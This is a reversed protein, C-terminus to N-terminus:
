RPDAPGWVGPVPDGAKGGGNGLPPVAAQRYEALRAALERVRDPHDAALDNRENPDAELDFLAYRTTSSRDRRRGRPRPNHILKWKGVRIAGRTSTANLLVETRPSKAGEAITAWAEKGDLPRCGDLTGGALAVLTPYLDVVHLMEKVVAGARVRDKWQVVCPVRVGGEFYTGKAGRLPRNDATGRPGGNDSFFLVLTDDRMGKRELAALVTGIAEDMCTVMGAFKARRPPLDPYMEQYRRPVELPTHPANFPVYLFLPKEPDHAEILRVCERAILRTSYGQERLPEDDRHWDLGGERTHTFYRIMGCYHGYQHDFGRSTPVWERKWFGLHWKGCIATEYGADKLAQSLFRERAPVGVRAFPRIVGAQTGTRIPYRGTLLAARTPSCVPQVYFSDLQTGERALRDINPTEIEGGHFGVDNWGLDDALFLVIHPRPPREQATLISAAAALLTLAALHLRFRHM